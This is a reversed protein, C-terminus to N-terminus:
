ISSLCVGVSGDQPYSINGIRDDRCFSNGVTLYRVTCDAIINSCISFARAADSGCTCSSLRSPPELECVELADMFGTACEDCSSDLKTRLASCSRTLCDLARISPQQFLPITENQLVGQTCVSDISNQIFIPDCSLLQWYISMNASTSVACACQGYQDGRSSCFNFFSLGDNSAASCSNGFVLLRM